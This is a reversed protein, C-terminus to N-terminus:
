ILSLFTAVTFWGFVGVTLVSFFVALGNRKKGERVIAALALITVLAFIIVLGMQGM